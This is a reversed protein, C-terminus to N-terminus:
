PSTMHSRLIMHYKEMPVESQMLIILHTKCFVHFFLLLVQINIQLVSESVFFQTFPLWTITTDISFFMSFWWQSYFMLCICWIASCIHQFFSVRWPLTIEIVGTETSFRFAFFLINTFLEHDLWACSCLKLPIITFKRAILFSQYICMQTTDPPCFTLTM